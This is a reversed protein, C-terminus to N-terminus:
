CCKHLRKGTGLRVKYNVRGREALLNSVRLGCVETPVMPDDLETATDNFDPSVDIPYVTYIRSKLTGVHNGNAWVILLMTCLMPLAM